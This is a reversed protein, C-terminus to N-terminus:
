AAETRAAPRVGRAHAERILYALVSAGANGRALLTLARLMGAAGAAGMLAEHTAPVDGGRSRLQRRMARCFHSKAEIRDRKAAPTTVDTDIWRM